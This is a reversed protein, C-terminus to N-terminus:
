SPVLVLVHERGGCDSGNLRKMIQAPCCLREIRKEVEDRPEWTLMMAWVTGSFELGSDWSDQSAVRSQKPLEAWVVLFLFVVFLSPSTDKRHLIIEDM